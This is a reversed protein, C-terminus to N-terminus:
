LSSSRCCLCTRSGHLEFLVESGMSWALVAGSRRRGSSSRRGRSIRCDRYRAVGNCQDAGLRDGPRHWWRTEGAASVRRVSAPGSPEPEARDLALLYLPCTTSPSSTGPSAHLLRRRRRPDVVTSPAATAVAIPVVAVAITLVFLRDALSPSAVLAVEAAASVLSEDDVDHEMAEPPATREREISM